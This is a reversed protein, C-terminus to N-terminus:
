EGNMTSFSIFLCAYVFLHVFCVSFLGCFIFMAPMCKCPLIKILNPRILLRDYKFLYLVIVLFSFFLLM